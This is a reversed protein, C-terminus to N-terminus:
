IIAIHAGELDRWQQSIVTSGAAGGSHRHSPRSMPRSPGLSLEQCSSLFQTADTDARIHHLPQAAPREPLVYCNKSKGVSEKTIIQQVKHKGTRNVEKTMAVTDRVSIARRASFLRGEAIALKQPTSKPCALQMDLFLLVPFLFLM